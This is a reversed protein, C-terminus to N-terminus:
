TTQPKELKLLLDEVSGNRLAEDFQTRYTTVLSVGEIELDYIRWGNKSKYFKYLMSITSDRSILDTSVHVKKNFRESGRFAVREDTYMSIRDLYTQKLLKVFLDTFQVQQDRTFATWHKKGLTL